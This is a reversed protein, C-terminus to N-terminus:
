ISCMLISSKSQLVDGCRANRRSKELSETKRCGRVDPQYEGGRCEGWMKQVAHRYQKLRESDKKTTGLSGLTGLEGLQAM